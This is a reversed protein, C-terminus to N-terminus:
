KVFSVKKYVDDPVNLDDFLLKGVFEPGSNSILGIKRAIFTITVEAKIANGLMEGSDSCLGSPIDVALVPLSSANIANILHTFPERITGNLGTGLLADVIVLEVTKSKSDEQQKKFIRNFELIPSVKLGLSLTYDLAKKADGNIKSLDGTAFLKVQLGHKKALGAIIFGDGGNNGIGSLVIIKTVNPWNNLLCNFAANGARQMLEFGPINLEEIALRDLERTAAATYYHPNKM